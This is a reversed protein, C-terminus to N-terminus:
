FSVSTVGFMSKKWGLSIIQYNIKLIGSKKCNRDIDISFHLPMENKLFPTYVYRCLYIHLICSKEEKKVM